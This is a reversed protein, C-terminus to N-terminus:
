ILRQPSRLPRGSGAIAQGAERAELSPKSFSGLKRGLKVRRKQTIGSPGEGLEVAGIGPFIAGTSPIARKLTFTFKLTFDNPLKKALEQCHEPPAADDDAGLLMLIPVKAAWPQIGRCSPYFVAAAKFPPQKEHAEALAQLLSAAGRSWGVAGIRSPDVFSLGRLYSQTAQIDKVIDQRPVQDGSGTPVGRASLYDVFVVVYSQEKLQEAQQSRNGVIGPSGPVLMLAPFPGPGDPRLLNYCPELKSQAHAVTLGNLVLATAIASFFLPRPM